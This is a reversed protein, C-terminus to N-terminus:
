RLELSLPTRSLREVGSPGIVVSHGPCMALRNERNMIIMHLFFVMNQEIVMQNGEYIMPYDVWIPAFACGMTYGCANLRHERFGGKDMVTAHAEFVDGLTNGPKLMDECSKLADTAVSHMGLHEPRAEGILVTRMMAAHYRRYCGAWELTMQDIKDLHRPGSQYRCLLAHEGSGIIFENGAYTGGGQFVAGQMAALIEGEFAGAKTLKIGADYADDALNAAKRIYDMEMDSKIYRLQNILDSADTLTCFNNLAESVLLYSHATLGFSDYEIGISKNECNFEKMLKKLNHAPNMGDEDKWVRIDEIISTLEAQALDPARTLLAMRGDASLYLCQFMAYGFSDYGSLYYMSEQRFLLIGDLGRQNIETIAKIQRQAFEEKTFHIAM